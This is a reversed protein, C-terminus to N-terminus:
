LCVAHLFVQREYQSIHLGQDSQVINVEERLYISELRSCNEELIFSATRYWLAAEMAANADSVASIYSSRVSSYFVPSVTGVTHFDGLVAAYRSLTLFAM